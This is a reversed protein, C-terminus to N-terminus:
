SVEQLKTANNYMSTVTIFSVTTNANKKQIAIIVVHKKFKCSFLGEVFLYQVHLDNCSAAM